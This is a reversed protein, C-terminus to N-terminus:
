EQQTPEPKAKQAERIQTTKGFAIWKRYQVHADQESIDAVREPSPIILDSGKLVTSGSEKFVGPNVMILAIARQYFSGGTKARIAEAINSLEEGKKVNYRDTHQEGATKQKTVTPTKKTDSIKAVPAAGDSTPLDRLPARVDGLMPEAAAKEHAIDPRAKEKDKVSIGVLQSMEPFAQEPKAKGTKSIQATKGFAVWKRYQTHADQDSIESVREPKPIIMTANDKLMTPYREKFAGPNAIILAIARQYFTGGTKVRIAESVNSLSEGNKVVYRDSSQQSGKASYKRRIKQNGYTVTVIFEKPLKVDSRLLITAGWPVAVLDYQKIGEIHVDLTKDMNEVMIDIMGQLGGFINQEYRGLELAHIETTALILAMGAWRKMKCAKMTAPYWSNGDM